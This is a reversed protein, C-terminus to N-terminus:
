GAIELILVKIYISNIRESMQIRIFEYWKDDLCKYKHKALFCDVGALPVLM